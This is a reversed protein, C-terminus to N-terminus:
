LLRGQRRQEYDDVVAEMIAIQREATEASLSGSAVWRPYASRRMRLERKLERLKDDDSIAPKDTTVNM